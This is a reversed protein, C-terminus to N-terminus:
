TSQVLLRAVAWSGSPGQPGASTALLPPSGPVRSARPRQNAAMLRYIRKHNVAAKGELRRQRNLLATARRYGYSPRGGVIAKVADLVAPGDKSQRPQRPQTAVPRM